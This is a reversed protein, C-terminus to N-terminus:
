SKMSQLQLYDFVAKNTKTNVVTEPVLSPSLISLM